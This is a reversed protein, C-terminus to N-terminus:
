TSGVHYFCLFTNVFVTGSKSLCVALSEGCCGIFPYARLRVNESVLRDM